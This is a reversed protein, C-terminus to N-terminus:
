APVRSLYILRPRDILLSRPPSLMLHGIDCASASEAHCENWTAIASGIQRHITGTNPWSVILM